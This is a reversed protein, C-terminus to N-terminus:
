GAVQAAAFNGTVESERDEALSFLRSSWRAANMEVLRVQYPYESISALSQHVRGHNFSRTSTFHVHGSLVLGVRPNADLLAHLAQRYRDMGEMVSRGLDLMTPPLVHSPCHMLAVAPRDPAASLANQLRAARAASFAPIPFHSEDWSPSPVDDPTLYENNIIAIDIEGLRYVGDEMRVNRYREAGRHFHEEWHSDIVDHNGLVMFVPKGSAAGALLDFFMAVEAKGGGHAADGTFAIADAHVAARGLRAFVERLDGRWFPQVHFQEPPVPSLQLHFDTFQLLRM